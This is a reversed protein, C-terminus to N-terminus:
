SNATLIIPGLMFSAPLPRAAFLEEKWYIDTDVPKHNLEPYKATLNLATIPESM